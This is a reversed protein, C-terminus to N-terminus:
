PLGRRWTNGYPGAATLAWARLDRLGEHDANADDHDAEGQDPVAVCKLAEGRREDHEQNIARDAHRQLPQNGNPQYEMTLGHEVTNEDGDIYLRITVGPQM